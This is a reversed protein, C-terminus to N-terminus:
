LDSGLDDDTFVGRRGVLAMESSAGLPIDLSYVFYSGPSENLRTISVLDDVDIAPNPPCTLPLEEGRGLHIQLRARAQSLAQGRDTIAEDVITEPNYGYGGYRYTLSDPNDDWIEVRVRAGRVAAGIVIVGNFPREDSSFTRTSSTIVGGEGEHLSLSPVRATGTGPAPSLTFDGLLDAHFIFGASRALARAQTLATIGAPILMPGVILPTDEPFTFTAGPLVVKVVRQIAEGWPTGSPIPVSRPLGRQLLHCRDKGGLAISGDDGDEVSTVTFTGLPVVEMSGDSYVVGKWPRVEVGYPHLIDGVRGQPHLLGDADIVTTSFSRRIAAASEATVRGETVELPEDAAHGGTLVQLYSIETHSGSVATLFRDSVDQM